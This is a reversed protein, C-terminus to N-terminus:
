NPAHVSADSTAPSLERTVPALRLSSSSRSFALAAEVKCAVSQRPGLFLISALNGLVVSEFQLLASKRGRVTTGALLRMAGNWSARGM